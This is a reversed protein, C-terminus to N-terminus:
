HTDKIELIIIETIDELEIIEKDISSFIIRYNKSIDVSFVNTYGELKHRRQPPTHPIEKLNNAARFESLRNKINFALRNYRKTLLRENKLIKELNKSSYHIEM